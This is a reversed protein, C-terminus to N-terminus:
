IHSWSRRKYIDVITPHSINYANVIKSRNIGLEVAKRIVLVDIETLKSQSNKVGKASRLGTKISHKQNESRTNWELNEVRNDTKIGNIHNVQPKNEPNPIFAMAVIRHVLLKKITKGDGLDVSLYGDGIPYQKLLKTWTRRAKPLSIIQGCQTVLYSAEYGVVPKSKLILDTLAKEM